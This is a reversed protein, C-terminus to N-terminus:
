RFGINPRADMCHEPCPAVDCPFVVLKQGEPCKRLNPLRYAPASGIKVCVGNRIIGASKIVGGGRERGEVPKHALYEKHECPSGEALVGGVAKKSPNNKKTKAWDTGGNNKCPDAYGMTTIGTSKSQVKRIGDNCYFVNVGEEEKPIDPVPTPMKDPPPLPSEGGTSPTEVSKAKKNKNYLYLGIAILGGGILIQNTKM